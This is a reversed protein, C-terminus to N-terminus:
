EHRVIKVCTQVVTTWRLPDFSGPSLTNANAGTVVASFGLCVPPSSGFRYSEDAALSAPSRTPHSPRDFRKQQSPTPRQIPSSPSHSAIVFMILAPRQLNTSNPAAAPALFCFRRGSLSPRFGVQLDQVRSMLHFHGLDRIRSTANPRDRTRARAKAAHRASGCALGVCRQVRCTCTTGLDRLETGFRM